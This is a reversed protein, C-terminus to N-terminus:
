RAGLVCANAGTIAVKYGGDAAAMERLRDLRVERLAREQVDMASAARYAWMVVAVLGALAISSALM